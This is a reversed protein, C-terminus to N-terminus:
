HARVSKQPGALLKPMGMAATASMLLSGSINTKEWIGYRIKGSSVERDERLIEPRIVAAREM